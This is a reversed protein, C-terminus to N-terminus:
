FGNQVIVARTSEGDVDDSDSRGILLVPRTRADKEAFPDIRDAPLWSAEDSRVPSFWQGRSAHTWVRAACRPDGLFQQETAWFYRPLVNGAAPPLPDFLIGRISALSRDPL